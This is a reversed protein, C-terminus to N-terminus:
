ARLLGTCIKPACPTPLDGALDKGRPLLNLRIMIPQSQDGALDKGRPLAIGFGLYDSSIDRVREAPHLDGRM